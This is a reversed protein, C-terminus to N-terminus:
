GGPRAALRVDITHRERGSYYEVSVTDGARHSALIALLQGSNAVDQGDIKVIVDNQRLGAAEAPAGRGVATVAIGHDVPLNFNKAIAPTVDVTGVGLYARDIKGKDILTRVTPEVLGVAISFGINQASQIIATNIGIVEGQANVLPGGSNGPNIGADTQIADNITYQQEDITRGKASVVGRTVTPGGKLDLAFGIAVVDEGVVLSDASAFTAPTLDSAEIKLVALDTPQDRGVITASVTRQDSLTVTIRDAPQDGTGNTVVHNNTVVHGDTDVIVGTGVGTSPVSRGFIDLTATSTQVRVISPALKAVIEATTLGPEDQIRPVVVTAVDSGPTARPTAKTSPSDSSCAAAAAAAICLVALVCLPKMSRKTRVFSLNTPRRPM